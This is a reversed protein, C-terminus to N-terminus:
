PHVCSVDFPPIHLIVPQESVGRCFASTQVLASPEGIDAVIRYAGFFGHFRFRGSADTVGAARTHWCFGILKRLLKHAYKPALDRRLLGAGHAGPEADAFGHWIIGGVSPQAFCLTYLETLRTGADREDCDAADTLGVAAGWVHVQLSGSSAACEELRLRLRGLPVREALNVRLISPEAAGVPVLHNFVEELRARRRERDAESFASLDPEICSFLFEHSEQEVSIPIGACPRGDADRAQICVNGKRFAEIHRQTRTLRCEM